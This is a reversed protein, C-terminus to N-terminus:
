RTPPGALEDDSVHRDAEGITAPRDRSTLRTAPAYGAQGDRLRPVVRPTLAAGGMACPVHCELRVARTGVLGAHALLAACRPRRSM